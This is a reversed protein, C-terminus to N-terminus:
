RVGFFRYGVTIGIATSNWAYRGWGFGTSNPNEILDSFETDYFVRIREVFSVNATLGLVLNQKPKKQSHFFFQLGATADPIAYYKQEITVFNISSNDDYYYFEFYPNGVVDKWYDMTEWQEAPHYFPHFKVGLEGQMCINKNLEKFVTLKVTFGIYSDGMELPVDCSAGYDSLRTLSKRYYEGFPVELAVGFGNKIMCGYQLIFEPVYAPYLIPEINGSNDKLKPKFNIGHFTSFGLTHFTKNFDISKRNEDQAFTKVSISFCIFLLLFVSKNM